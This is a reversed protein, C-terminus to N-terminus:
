FKKPGRYGADQLCLSQHLAFLAICYQNLHLRSFSAVIILPRLAALKSAKLRLDDQLFHVGAIGPQYPIRESVPLLAAAPAPLCSVM